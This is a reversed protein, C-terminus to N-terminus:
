HHTEKEILDLTLNDMDNFYYKELVCHFVSGRESIHAFLTMSSRLKLADTYGFIKEPNRENLSLVENSIEKLRVSLILM